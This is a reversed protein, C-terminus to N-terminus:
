MISPMMDLSPKNKHPQFDSEVSLKDYEVGLKDYEVSLKIMSLASNIMKGISLNIM